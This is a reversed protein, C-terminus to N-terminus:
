LKLLVDEIIAGKSQQTTIGQMEFYFDKRFQELYSAERDVCIMRNEPFLDHIMRTQAGVGCGMELIPKDSNLKISKRAILPCLHPAM